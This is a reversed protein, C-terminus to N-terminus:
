FPFDEFVVTNQGMQIQDATIVPVPNIGKLFYFIQNGLNQGQGDPISLPDFEVGGAPFVAQRIGLRGSVNQPEILIQAATDNGDTGVGMGGGPHPVMQLFSVPDEPILDPKRMDAGEVFHFRDEMGQLFCPPM